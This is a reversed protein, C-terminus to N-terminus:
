KARRYARKAHAVGVSGGDSKLRDIASAPTIAASAMLWGAVVLVARM